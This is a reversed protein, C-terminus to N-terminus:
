RWDRTGFSSGAVGEISVGQAPAVPVTKAPASRPWDKIGERAVLAMARDIPLHITGASKQQWYTGNLERMQQARFAEMDARPSPQLRPAPYAPFPQAFRRDDVTVPYLWWALLLLLVLTSGILTLLALMSRFTVDGAERRAPPLLRDSM